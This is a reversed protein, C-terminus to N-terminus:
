SKDRVPIRLFESVRRAHEEVPKKRVSESLKLTSGTTKLSASYRRTSTSGRASRHITIESQDDLQFGEPQWRHILRIWQEGSRTSRDFRTCRAYTLFGVGFYTMPVGVVLCVLITIWNSLLNGKLISTVALALPPLGFFLCPLAPVIGLVGAPDSIM